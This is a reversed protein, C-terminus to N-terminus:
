LRARATPAAALFQCAFLLGVVGAVQKVDAALVMLAFGLWPRQRQALLLGGLALAMMFTDNHGMGASEIIVLPNWAYVLLPRLSSGADVARGLERILWAGLLSFLAAAGKFAVATAFVRGGGLGALLASLWTFTPGYASPVAQW